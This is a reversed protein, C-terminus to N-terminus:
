WRMVVVSILISGAGAGGISSHSSEEGSDAMAVAAAFGVTGAVGLIIHMNADDFLGRELNFDGFTAVDSIRERAQVSRATLRKM